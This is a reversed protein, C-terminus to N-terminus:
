DLSLSIDELKARDLLIIHRDELSLIGEKEWKRLTKNVNERTGRAMSGLDRQKIQPGLCEAKKGGVTVENGLSAFLYLLSYSLRQALNPLYLGRSFEIHQRYRRAIMRSVELRIEEYAEGSQLMWSRDVALVEAAGSTSATHSYGSSDLVGTEGFCQGAAVINFLTVFGDEAIHSLRVHGRLVIFFHTTEDDQYHVVSTSSFKRVRAHKALIDKAADSLHELEGFDPRRSTSESAPAVAKGETLELTEQDFM